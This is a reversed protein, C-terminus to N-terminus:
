ARRGAGSPSGRSLARLHARAALRADKAIQALILNEEVTLGPIIRRDEPVLSVGM